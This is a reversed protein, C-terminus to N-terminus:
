HHQVLWVGDESKKWFCWVMLRQNSDLWILANPDGWDIDQGIDFYSRVDIWM